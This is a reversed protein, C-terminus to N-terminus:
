RVVGNLDVPRRVKPRAGGHADSSTGNAVYGLAGVEERAEIGGGGGPEANGNMDNKVISESAGNGGGSTPTLNAMTINSHSLLCIAEKVDEM